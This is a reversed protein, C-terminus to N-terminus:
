LGSSTVNHQPERLALDVLEVLFLDGGEASGTGDQVLHVSTDLNERVPLPPWTSRHNAQSSQELRVGLHM